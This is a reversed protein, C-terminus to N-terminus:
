THLPAPPPTCWHFLTHNWQHRFVRVYPAGGYILHCSPFANRPFANENRRCNMEPFPFANRPFTNGNGNTQRHDITSVIIGGFYPPHKWGGSTSVGAPTFFCNRNQQHTWTEENTNRYSTLRCQGYYNPTHNIPYCFLRPYKQRSWRAM